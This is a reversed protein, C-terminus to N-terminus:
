RRFGDSLKPLHQGLLLILSEEALAPRERRLLCFYDLILHILFMDSVEGDDSMDIM